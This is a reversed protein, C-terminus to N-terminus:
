ALVFSPAPVRLSPKETHKLKSEERGIAAVSRVSPKVVGTKFSCWMSPNILTWGRPYVGQQGERDVGWSWVAFILVPFSKSTILGVSARSRHSVAAEWGWNRRCGRQLSLLSLVELSQARFVHCCVWSGRTFIFLLWGVCLKEGCSHFICMHPGAMNKWYNNIQLYLWSTISYHWSFHVWPPFPSHLQAM